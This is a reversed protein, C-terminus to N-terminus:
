TKLNLSKSWFRLHWKQVGKIIQTYAINICFIIKSCPTAGGLSGYHFKLEYCYHKKACKIRGYKTIDPITYKLIKAHIFHIMLEFYYFPHATNCCINSLIFEKNKVNRWFRLCHLIRIHCSIFNAQNLHSWLTLLVYWRNLYRSLSPCASSCIYLSDSIYVSLCVSSCISLCISM